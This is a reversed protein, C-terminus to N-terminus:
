KKKKLKIIAITGGILGGLVLGIVASKVVNDKTIGKTTNEEYKLEKNIKYYITNIINKFEKEEEKTFEQSSQMTFTYGKRNVITYYSIIYVNNQEDYYDILTYKYKNKYIDYNDTNAIKAIEKSLKKIYENSYNSLNNINDVEKIRLFMELKADKKIGNIYADNNEFLELMSEYSSSIYKLKDNDKINDRTFVYWNDDLEINLDASPVKYTEAKVNVPILLLVMLIILYKKIKIKM